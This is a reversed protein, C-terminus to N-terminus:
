VHRGARLASEIQGRDIGIDRLEYDTMSELLRRDHRGKLWKGALEIPRKPSFHTTRLVTTIISMKDEKMAAWRFADAPAPISFRCTLKANRLPGTQLLQTRM